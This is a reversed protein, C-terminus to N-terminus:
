LFSVPLGRDSEGCTRRVETLESLVPCLAEMTIHARGPGLRLDTVVGAM